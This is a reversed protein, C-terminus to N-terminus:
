VLMKKDGEYCLRHLRVLNVHQITRKTSVQLYNLQGLLNIIVYVTSQLFKHTKM